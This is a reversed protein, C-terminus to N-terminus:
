KLTLINYRMYVIGLSPTQPYAERPFKPGSLSGRTSRLTLGMPLSTCPHVHMGRKLRVIIILAYVVSDVIQTTDHM